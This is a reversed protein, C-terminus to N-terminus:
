FAVVCEYMVGSFETVGPEPQESIYLSRSAYKKFADV